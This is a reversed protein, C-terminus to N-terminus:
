FCQSLLENVQHFLRGMIRLFMHLTDVVVFQFPIKLLPPQKFGKSGDTTSKKALRECDGLEREIPWEAVSVPFPLFSSNVLRSKKNGKGYWEDNSTRKTKYCVIM